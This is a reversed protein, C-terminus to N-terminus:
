GRSDKERMARNYNSQYNDRQASLQKRKRELNEYMQGDNIEIKRCNHQISDLLEDYVKVQENAGKGQLASRSQGYYAMSSRKWDYLEQRKKELDRKQKLLDNMEQENKRMDSQYQTTLKDVTM